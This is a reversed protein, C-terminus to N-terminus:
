ALLVAECCPPPSEDLPPDRRTRKRAPDAAPDAGVAPCWLMAPFLSANRGSRWLPATPPPPPGDLADRVAAIAAALECFTSPSYPGACAVVRATSLLYLEALAAWRPAAGWDSSQIMFRGDREQGTVAAVADARRQADAAADIPSFRPLRAALDAAVSPQDSVLLAKAGGLRSARLLGPLQADRLAAYWPEATPELKRAKEVGMKVNAGGADNVGHTTVGVHLNVRLHVGLGFPGLRELADEVYAGVVASPRLFLYALVGYADPHRALEAFGRSLFHKGRRNGCGAGGVGVAAGGAFAGDYADGLGFGREPDAALPLRDDPAMGELHFIQKQSHWLPTDGGRRTLKVADPVPCGCSLYRARLARVTWVAGDDYRLHPTNLERVEDDLGLVASRNEHIARLLAGLTALVHNGYGKRLRKHGQYAFAVRPRGDAGLVDACFRVCSAADKSTVFPIHWELWVETSELLRREACGVKAAADTSSACAAADYPLIRRLERVATIASRSWLPRSSALSACALLALRM